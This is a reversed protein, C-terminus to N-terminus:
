RLNKLVIAVVAEEVEVKAVKVEDLIMKMTITKVKMGINKSFVILNV